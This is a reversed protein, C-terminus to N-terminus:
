LKLRMGVRNVGVTLGLLVVACGMARAVAHGLTAGGLNMWGAVAFDNVYIRMLM